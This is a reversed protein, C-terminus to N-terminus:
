GSRGYAIAILRWAFSNRPESVLVLELNKIASADLARDNLEIQSRALMIRIQTADPQSAVAQEYVPLAEAIRGYEFLMQGKMELFYPDKPADTLLSDILELAKAIQGERYELIAHAYRAPLSTDSPPYARDVQGRSQLFGV